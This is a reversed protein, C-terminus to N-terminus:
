NNPPKIKGVLRLMVIALIVMAGCTYSWITLAKVCISGTEHSESMIQDFSQSGTGTPEHYNPATKMMQHEIFLVTARSWYYKSGINMDLAWLGLLLGLILQFWLFTKILKMTYIGGLPNSPANQLRHPKM